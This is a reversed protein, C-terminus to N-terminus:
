KIIEKGMFWLETVLAIGFTEMIIPSIEATPNITNNALTDIIVAFPGVANAIDNSGHSFAFGAATFVQLWSFM